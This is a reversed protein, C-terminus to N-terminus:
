AYGLKIMESGMIKMVKLIGDGFQSSVGVARLQIIEHDKLEVVKEREREWWLGEEGKVGVEDVRHAIPFLVKTTHSLFPFIHLLPDPFSPATASFLYFIGDFETDGVLGEIEGLSCTSPIDWFEYCIYHSENEIELEMTRNSINIKNPFTESVELGSLRKFFRTKGVESPGVIAIRARKGLLLV